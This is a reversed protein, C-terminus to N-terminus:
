WWAADLVIEYRTCPEHRPLRRQITTLGAVDVPGLGIRWSADGCRVLAAADGIPRPARSALDLTVDVRGGPYRSFRGQLDVFPRVDLKRDFSGRSSFVVERRDADITVNFGGAVNLGLLGASDEDACDECQTVAVGGVAQDGLWVADLLAVQATRDGNATHLTLEPADPGPVAGLARLVSRPLTTYTAGTDLMMYTEVERGGHQFVVPVSLRRGEGEYPLAIEHADLALATPAAEALTAEAVPPRAMAVEPEDPLQDAVAQALGDDELGVAFSLLALGGAVAEAREGPFLVPLGVFSALAWVLQVAGAHRVRTSPAAVYAATLPGLTLTAAVATAPLADAQRSLALGLWAAFVVASGVAALGVVLLDVARTM